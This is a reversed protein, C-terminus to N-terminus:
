NSNKIEGWTYILKKQPLVGINNREGTIYAENDSIGVAFQKTGGIVYITDNILPAPNSGFFGRASPMFEKIEWKQSKINYVEVNSLSQLGNTVGGILYINDNIMAATPCYRKTPMKTDISEWDENEPDFVIIDQM